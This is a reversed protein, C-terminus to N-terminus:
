NETQGSGVVIRRGSQLFFSIGSSQLEHGPRAPRRGFLLAEM